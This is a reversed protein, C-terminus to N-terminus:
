TEVPAEGDQYAHLLGHMRTVINHCASVSPRVSPRVEKHILEGRGGGWVCLGALQQLAVRRVVRLLGDEADEGREALDEDEGEEETDEKMVDHLLVRALLLVVGHHVLNLAVGFHVLQRPAELGGDLEAEGELVLLADALVLLDQHTWAHKAPQSSGM